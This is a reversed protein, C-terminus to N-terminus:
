GGAFRWPYDVIDPPWCVPMTNATDVLYNTPGWVWLLVKVGADRAAQCILFTNIAAADGIPEDLVEVMRQLMEVADPAIEIEHLRIDHQRAILRAFHPDDPMAELRKDEERFRITYAELEPNLQKAIVTLLSSDLGGSLFTYVPVDAVMHAVVSERITERLSHVDPEHDSPVALEQQPDYYCHQRYPQGPAIQAWHGPPLKEVGRYVCQSEPIWYYMLSAVLAADNVQLDHDCARAIAKLESAFILGNDRKCVFLPKIGFPDRALFLQGTREDLIAFAFMGRLRNLCGPGWRRWAELLVETDSSTNFRVGQSSLEKALESYNYIEGNFVVALGDKVLPQNAATSLDIISLRRHGLRVPMGGAIHAYKGEADPGRHQISELMKPLVDDILPLNYTGAIGCM